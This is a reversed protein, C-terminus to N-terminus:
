QRNFFKPYFKYLLGVVLATLITSPLMYSGNYVLSYVWVKSFTDPMYAGWLLAGSLFSCIFRLFCVIVTGLVVGTLKHEGFPKAFFAALGLVTFALLYDLLICGIQSLLTACYMVNSFGLILFLVSCVGATFVGWGTGRRFPMIVLPIMSLSIAGGYPLDLLKIQDLIFALAIMLAGEVLIVTKSNKNM